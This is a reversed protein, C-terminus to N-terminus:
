TKPANSNSVNPQFAREHDVAEHLTKLAPRQLPENNWCFLIHEGLGFSVYQDALFALKGDRSLEPPHSESSPLPRKKKPEYALGGAIVNLLCGVSFIDIAFGHAADRVIKREPPMYDKRGCFIGGDKETHPVLQGNQILFSRNFDM